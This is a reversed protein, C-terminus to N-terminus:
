LNYGNKSSIYCSFANIINLKSLSFGVHPFIFLVVLLMKSKKPMELVIEYKFAKSLPHNEQAM